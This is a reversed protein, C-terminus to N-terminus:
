AIAARGQAWSRLAAVDEARSVSLPVTADVEAAVDVNTAERKEALARYLAGVICTEIEAGSFGHTAAVLDDLDFREPDLERRSLHTSFIAHRAERTPLDVFFIEDFRGRRLFEPPLSSVENATAVVFVGGPRDQMWRLFTGLMRRSVGGDGEGSTAFGKEIEDIWLVAPSMAEVSELARILRDESEGIYKSYLRAPDLLVLPVGWASAVTKAILSKGAGPIGTLLMGKPRDIGAVETGTFVASRVTLWEKLNDFGGVDDLSGVTSEVLELIGDSALLEAKAHRIAPLDDASVSGDALAARQILRDAEGLSLGALAGVLEEMAAPSLDVTLRRQALDNFTREALERLEHADPPRLRWVHALGELEVPVEHKPATLIVTQGEPSSMALEKIGRVVRADELIPHADAFVYVGPLEVDHVFQIAIHPNRTGYQSPQGVRGLGATSSWLWVPVELETAARHVISFFREEDQTEALILAHRSGLLVRLDAANDM